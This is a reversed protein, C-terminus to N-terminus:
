SPLCLSSTQKPLLPQSLRALCCLLASLIWVLKYATYKVGMFYFVNKKEYKSSLLVIINYSINYVPYTTCLLKLFMMADVLSVIRFSINVCKKYYYYTLFM